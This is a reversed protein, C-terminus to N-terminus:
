LFRTPVKIDCAHCGHQHHYPRHDPPCDPFRERFSDDSCGVCGFFLVRETPEDTIPPRVYTYGFDQHDPKACLDLPIPM